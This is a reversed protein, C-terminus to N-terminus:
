SVEKDLIELSLVWFEGVVEFKGKGGKIARTWNASKYCIESHNLLLLERLTM